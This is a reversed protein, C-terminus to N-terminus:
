EYDISEEEDEDSEEESEVDDKEVKLDGFVLSFDYM